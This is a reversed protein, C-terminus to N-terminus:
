RNNHCPNLGAYSKTTAGEPLMPHAQRGVQCVIRYNPAAISKIVGYFM